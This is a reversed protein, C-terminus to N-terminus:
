TWPTILPQFVPHAARVGSLHPHSPGAEHPSQPSTSSPESLARSGSRPGTPVPKGYEARAPSSYRSGQDVYAIEGVGNEPIPTIVNATQGILGLVHSESSSQTKHFISNFLRFVAAAILLGSVVALPASVFPRRRPRSRRLSWALGALLRSSRRSRPQASLPSGQCARTSSVRRLMAAQAWMAM